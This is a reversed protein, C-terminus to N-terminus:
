RLVRVRSLRSGICFGRWRHIGWFHEVHSVFGPVFVLNVPGEGLLQYAIHVDGSKAYETRPEVGFGAFLLVFWSVSALAIGALAANKPTAARIGSDTTRKPM